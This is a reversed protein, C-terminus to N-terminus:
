MILCLSSRKMTRQRQHDDGDGGGDDDAKDYGGDGDHGVLNSPSLMKVVTAPSKHLVAVDHATWGRLSDHIAAAEPWAKYVATITELSNERRVALHLPTDGSESKAKVANPAAKILAAISDVPASYHLGHHLPTNGHANRIEAAEPCAAIIAGIAAITAATPSQQMAIHLPSLEQSKTKALAAEPFCDMLANVLEIESNHLLAFHLATHMEAGAKVGVCGPEAGLAHLASPMNGHSIALQLPPIGHGNCKYLSSPKAAILAKISGLPAHMQMGVHVGNNMSSDTSEAAAPCAKLVAVVADTNLKNQMAIHMPTSSAHNQIM